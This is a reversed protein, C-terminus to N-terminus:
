LRSSLVDPLALEYAALKWVIWRYHNRIWGEAVLGPDVGPVTLFARYGFVCVVSKVAKQSAAIM